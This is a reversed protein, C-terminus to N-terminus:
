VRKLADDHFHLGLSIQQFSVCNLLIYRKMQDCRYAIRARSRVSQKATIPLMKLDTVFESRCASTLISAMVAVNAASLPGASPWVPPEAWRSAVGCCGIHKSSEDLVQGFVTDALLFGSVDAVRQEGHKM